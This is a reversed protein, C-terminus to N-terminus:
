KNSSDKYVGICMIVTWCLYAHLYKYILAETHQLEDSYKNLM